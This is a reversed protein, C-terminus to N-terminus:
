KKKKKFSIKLYIKLLRVLMGNRGMSVIVIGVIVGAGAVAGSV